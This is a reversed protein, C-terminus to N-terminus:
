KISVSVFWHSSMHELSLARIYFLLPHVRGALPTEGLTVEWGARGQLDSLRRLSSLESSGSQQM